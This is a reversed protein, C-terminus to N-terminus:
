EERVLSKKSVSLYYRRILEEKSPLPEEKFVNDMEQRLEPPLHGWEDKGGAVSRKSPRSGRSPIPASGGTTGPTSSPKQGPQQNPNMALKRQRKGNAQGQSNRM